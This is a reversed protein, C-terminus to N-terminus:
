EHLDGKKSKLKHFLKEDLEAQFLQQCKEQLREVLIDKNTEDDFLRDLWNPKKITNM